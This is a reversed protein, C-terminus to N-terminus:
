IKKWRPIPWLIFEAKGLLSGAPVTGFSRSDKSAGSRRNDGMVFVKGPEVTLPGFDPGAIAVDAYPEALREGNVYLVGGRIEITDGAVGIVRKVIYKSDGPTPAPDVLVAIDGRAPGGLRYGIKNVLLREGTKLTPEMSIGHVTTLDFVFLKLVAVVVVAFALSKLWDSLEERWGKPKAGRKRRSRERRDAFREDTETTEAPKNM